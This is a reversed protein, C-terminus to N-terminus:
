KIRNQNFYREFCNIYEQLQELDPATGNIERAQDHCWASCETMGEELEQYLLTSFPAKKLRQTQVCPNFRQLADNFLIEEVAREWSERLLECLQKAEYYYNDMDGSNCTHNIQQLDNKLKGIREKVRMGPWPIVNSIDGPINGIKRVTEQVFSVDEKDALSKLEMFFTIDHTFVIVQRNKSEDLLRNAIISRRKHDLSCVPDDLVIGINNDDMKVETLFSALAVARQEGESLIEGPECGKIQLKKLTVGSNGRSKIEANFNANLRECEDSFTNIYDETVYKEFLGKQKYTISRTGIKKKQALGLWQLQFIYKSILPLLEIAKEKDTFNKEKREYEEIIENIVTRNLKDRKDKIAQYLEDIKTLDILVIPVDIKELKDLGQLVIVQNNKINEFESCINEGDEEFNSKIWEEQISSKSYLAVEINEIEAKLDSIKEKCKNYHQEAASELYKWYKNILDSEIIDQGCLPCKSHKEIQDYYKKASVIFNKWEKTGLKEIKYDEFQEIGNSNLLKQCEITQEIINNYEEIREKSFYLVSSEANIKVQEISSLVKEIQSYQKDIDLSILRAKETKIIKIEAKEEDSLKFVQELDDIKSNENLEFIEKVINGEGTFFKLFPNDESKEKMENELRDQIELCLSAFKYFFKLESPAFDVESEKSMDVSASKWDFDRITSFIFSNKEEPYSLITDNGDITFKFEAHISKLDNSYIDSVIKKDGRSIFANNLLRTYGSKGSGNEGYIVTINEGVLLPDHSELRNVGTINGVSKWLVANQKTKLETMELGGFDKVPGYLLGNEIKFVSYIEDLFNVELAERELIKDALRQQWSPLTRVWNTIDEIIM